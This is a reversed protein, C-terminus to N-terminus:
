SNRRLLLAPLRILMGFFLLAHMKSIRINDQLLDFHSAIEDDYLVKTPVHVVAHGDWYLKVLIDTDFDMRRGISYRQITKMSSVLPYMRYGCMSDKIELSLTNIYVWVDTVMRGYRRNKPVSSYIREGSVVANPKLEAAKLFLPIDRLDHQGDADVQLAHSYGLTSAMELAHCVAAGKGQNVEFRFLKLREYEAAIADLVSACSEQSGDDVLIIDLDFALIQEVVQQIKLEHNYVPIIVCPYFSSATM